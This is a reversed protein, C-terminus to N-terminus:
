RGPAVPQDGEEVLRSFASEICEVLVDPDRVASPDLSIGLDLRDANGLATVNVLRGARPGFPYSARIAAGCIAGLERRGRLTTAIFDVTGIQSRVALRLARSPLLSVAASFPGTVQKVPERRARDM